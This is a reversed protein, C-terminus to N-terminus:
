APTDRTAAAKAALSDGMVGKGIVNIMAKPHPPFDIVEDKPVIRHGRRGTYRIESRPAASLGAFSFAPDTLGFDHIKQCAPTRDSVENPPVAKGILTFRAPSCVRTALVDLCALKAFGTMFSASPLFYTTPESFLGAESNLILVPETAKAAYASEVVLLGDRKLLPRLRIFADAPNLLHYMVGACIIMDFSAADFRSPASELSVPSLRQVSVGFVEEALNWQPGKGLGGIDIATVDAGRMALGISILGHAPGVELVTMGQVDIGNLLDMVGFLTRNPPTDPDFRGATQHSGFDFAHYWKLSSALAAQEETLGVM